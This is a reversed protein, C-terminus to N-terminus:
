PAVSDAVADAQWGGGSAKYLAVWATLRSAQVQVLASQANLTLRHAQELEAASSLGARWSSATALAARRYGAASAEAFQERQAASDLRVLGEEVERVAQVVSGRYGALAEDFRAQAADAQARRAGADFVPLSLSPGFSWASGQERTGGSLQLASLSISGGLQLQPYRAAEAAGREAWAALVQRQQAALDPRQALTQAPLSAVQLGQTKPLQARRATLRTRLEAEPVGSLAVLGKIQVDCEAQQALVRNESEAASAQLLADPGAAELGVKLKDASWRGLKRMAQADEQSIQLLQECARLSIYSQAVEAALSVRAAHWELQSAQARTEAADRQQRVRSFLDIEWGADLSANSLTQTPSGKPLALHQRQATANLNLGPWLASGSQTALSRAQQIRAVAQQLGPSHAQAQEILQPLLPDDFQAWWQQLGQTQGGHPLPAAWSAPTQEAQQLRQQPPPSVACGAMALATALCLANRGLGQMGQTRPKLETKLMM